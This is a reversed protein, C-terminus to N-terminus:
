PASPPRAQAKLQELLDLTGHQSCWKAMYDWDLMERQLAVVYTADTLDQKRGPHRCWRLKAVVVDEPTPLYTREGELDIVRRRQFREQAFESDSLLFFELMFVSERHRVRYYHSATITEFGMQPDLVFDGELRNVIENISRDGLEIIFDADKTSRPRGYYNSAFSGTILYPIGSANVARLAIFFLEDSKM